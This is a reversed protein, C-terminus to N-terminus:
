VDKDEMQMHMHTHNEISNALDGEKYPPDVDEWTYRAEGITDWGGDGTYKRSGLLSLVAFGPGVEKVEWSLINIDVGRTGIPLERARIGGRETLCWRSRYGNVRWPSGPGSFSVGLECSVSPGAHAVILRCAYGADAAFARVRVQVEPHGAVRTWNMRQAEPIAQISALKDWAVSSNDFLRQALEQHTKVVKMKSM